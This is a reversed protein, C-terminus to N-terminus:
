PQPLRLLNRPSTPVMAVSGRYLERHGGSSAVRLTGAPSSNQQHYRECPANLTCPWIACARRTPTAQNARPSLSSISSTARAPQPSSRRPIRRDEGSAGTSGCAQLLGPGNSGYTEDIGCASPADARSSSAITPRPIFPRSSGGSLTVALACGCTPRQQDLFLEVGRDKKMRAVLQGAQLLELLQRSPVRRRDDQGM